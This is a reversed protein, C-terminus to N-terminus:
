VGLLRNLAEIARDLAGAPVHSNIGSVFKAILELLLDQPMKQRGKRVTLHM